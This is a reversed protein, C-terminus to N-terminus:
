SYLWSAIGGVIVGIAAGAGVAGLFTVTIPASAILAGGALVGWVGAGALSGAFAGVTSGASIADVANGGIVNELESESMEMVNHKM